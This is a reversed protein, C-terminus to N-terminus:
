CVQPQCVKAKKSSGMEPDDERPSQKATTSAEAEEALSVLKPDDISGPGPLEKKAELSPQPTTVAPVKVKEKIFKINQTCILQCFM